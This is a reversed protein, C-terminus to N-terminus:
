HFARYLLRCIGVVGVDGSYVDGGSESAQLELTAGRCVYTAEVPLLGAGTEGCCRYLLHMDHQALRESLRDRVTKDRAVGCVAHLQRQYTSRSLLDLWEVGFLAGSEQFCGASLPQSGQVHEGDM